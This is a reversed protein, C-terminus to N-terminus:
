SLLTGIELERLLRRGLDFIAQGEGDFFAVGLLQCAHEQLEQDGKRYYAEVNLAREGEPYLLVGKQTGFQLNYAYIQRLDGSSPQRGALDKWKTDVVVMEGDPYTILLDPRLSHRRWFPLSQQNQVLIGMPIAAKRLLRYVYEEFLKNMDFLIGVAETRGTQLNPSHHEQIFRALQLAYRYRETKRNLIIRSFDQLHIKRNSVLEMDLLVANCLAIIKPYRSIDRVVQATQKLIQHLLHDRGYIDQEVFFRERHVINQRFHTSTVLKGKLSQSNSQQKYYQKSFGQRLLVQLEKLYSEFFLEILSAQTVSQAAQGTEYLKLHGCTQLMELLANRWKQQRGARDAKPLIEICLDELQIVGVFQRFIVQQYGVQILERDYRDNFRLLADFHRQSFGRDRLRLKEHEFVQITKM